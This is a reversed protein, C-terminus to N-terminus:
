LSPRMHQAHEDLFHLAQALVTEKPHTGEIAHFRVGATQAQVDWSACEAIRQEIDGHGDGRLIFRQRLQEADGIRLYISRMADKKQRLMAYELLSKVGEITLIAIHVGSGLANDVTRRRTGYCNGHAEINWLFAGSKLFTKFWKQPVYKYEGPVDSERPGRTTISELPEAGPRMAIIGRMLTTKGSASPGTITLIM